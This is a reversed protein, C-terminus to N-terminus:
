SEKLIETSKAAYSNMINLRYPPTTTVPHPGFAKPTYVWCDFLMMKDGDFRATNNKHKEKDLAQSDTFISFFVNSIRFICNSSSYGDIWGPNM